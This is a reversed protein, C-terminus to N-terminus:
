LPGGNAAAPRLLHAATTNSVQKAAPRLPLIILAAALRGVM